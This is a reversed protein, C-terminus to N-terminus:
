IRYFMQSWSRQPSPGGAAPGPIVGTADAAATLVDVEEEVARLLSRHGLQHFADLIGRAAWLRERSRRSATRAANLEAALRLVHARATADSALRATEAAAAAVLAKEAVPVASGVTGRALHSLLWEGALASPSRVVDPALRRRRLALLARLAAATLLAPSRPASPRDFDRFEGTPSQHDLLWLLAPRCPEIGLEEVVAPLMMATALLDPEVSGPGSRGLPFGRGGTSAFAASLFGRRFALIPDIRARASEPSRGNL